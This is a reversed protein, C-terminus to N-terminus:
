HTLLIKQKEGDKVTILKSVLGGTSRYATVLWTINVEILYEGAPVGTFEFNGQADAVTKRCYQNISDAVEKTMAPVQYGKDRLARVEKMFDTAPILTVTQGAGVKVAGGKTKLFAQGHVEATGTKGYPAFDAPDFAAKPNATPASTMCGALALIAVCALITISKNKMTTITPKTDRKGKDNDASTGKYPKGKTGSYLFPRM